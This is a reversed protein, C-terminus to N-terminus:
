VTDKRTELAAVRVELAALRQLVDQLQAEAV